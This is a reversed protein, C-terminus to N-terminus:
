PDGSHTTPTPSPDHGATDHANLFVQGTKCGKAWDSASAISRPVANCDCGPSTVARDWGQQYPKSPSSSGCGHPEFVTGRQRCIGLCSCAAVPPDSEPSEQHMDVETPCRRTLGEWTRCLIPDSKLKSRLSQPLGREGFPPRVGRRSQRTAPHPPVGM